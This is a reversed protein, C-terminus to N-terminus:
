MKRILSASFREMHKDAIWIYKKSFHRNLDKVWKKIPNNMKRTNLKMLQNWIKSILEKWSNSKSNNEGM